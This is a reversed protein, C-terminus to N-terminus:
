SSAQPRIVSSSIAHDDIMAALGISQNIIKVHLGRLDDGSLDYKGSLIERVKSESDSIENMQSQVTIDLPKMLLSRPIKSSTDNLISFVIDKVLTEHPLFELANATYFVQVDLFNNVDDVTVPSSPIVTGGGGISSLSGIVGGNVDLRVIVFGEILQKSNNGISFFQRIDKCVIGVSTQPQITKVIANTNSGGNIIANL